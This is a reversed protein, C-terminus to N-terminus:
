RNEELPSPRNDELTTEGGLIANSMGRDVVITQGRIGNASRSCLFTVVDAIEEPPVFASQPLREIGPWLMRLVRFSDTKVIGGCVGNVNIGKAAFATAWSMVVNEMAAKMWGLPYEPHYFRSGLSSIFVVRGGTESLPKLTRQLLFVNGLFNTDVLSRLDRELLRDFSKFPTRAANLILIDLKGFAALTATVVHDVEAKKSIDGPILEARRGLGRIDEVLAKGPKESPGGPKRFGIAVDAGARALALTIARGIGRAGGTVLATKGTLDTAAM